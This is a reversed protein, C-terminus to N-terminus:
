RRGKLWNADEDFGVVPRPPKLAQEDDVHRRESAEM